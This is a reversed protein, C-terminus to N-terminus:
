EDDEAYTDALCAMVEEVTMEGKNGVDYRAFWEEIMDDDVGANGCHNRLEAKDISGNNDDDWSTAIARIEEKQEDTLKELATLKVPAPKAPFHKAQMALIKEEPVLPFAAKVFSVFTVEHAEEGSLATFMQPASPLLDPATLEVHRCYEELDISASQDIDMDDFMRKMITFDRKSIVTGAVKAGSDLSGRRIRSARDPRGQVELPTVEGTSRRRAPRRKPKQKPPKPKHVETWISAYLSNQIQLNKSPVQRASQQPKQNRASQSGTKPVPFPNGRFWGTTPKPNQKRATQVLPQLRRFKPVARTGPVAPQGVAPHRSAPVRKPAFSVPLPQIKTANGDTVVQQRGGPTKRSLKNSVGQTVRNLDSTLEPSLVSDRSAAVVDTNVSLPRRTQPKELGSRM